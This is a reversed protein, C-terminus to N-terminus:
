LSRRFYYTYYDVGFLGHPRPESEKDFLLGDIEFKKATSLLAHGAPDVKVRVARVNDSDKVKIAAEGANQGGYMKVYSWEQNKDYLIRGQIINAIPTNTIDLDNQNFSEYPNYNPDSVIVTKEPEQYVTLPRTFTAVVENFDARLENKEADTLLSM